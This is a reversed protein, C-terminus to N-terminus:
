LNLLATDLGSVTKIGLDALIEAYIEYPHEMQNIHM